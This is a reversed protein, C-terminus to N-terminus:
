AEQPNFEAVELQHYYKAIKPLLRLLSYDSDSYGNPYYLEWGDQWIDKKLNIHSIIEISGKLMLGRWQDPKSYYVSVASNQQIHSIKSSSTNTTFYICFDEPQSFFFQALGPFQEKRRLNFMARTEPFGEPDITTLCAVEAIEMLQLSSKKAEELNM